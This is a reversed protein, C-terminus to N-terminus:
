SLVSLYYPNWTTTTTTTAATAATTTSSSSSSSSGLSEKKNNVRAVVVVVLLLFRNHVRALLLICFHMEGSAVVASGQIHILVTELCPDLPCFFQLLYSYVAVQM